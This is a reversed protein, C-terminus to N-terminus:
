HRSRCQATGTEDALLPCRREGRYAAGRRCSGSCATSPTSSTSRTPSRMSDVRCCPSQRGVPGDPDATPVLTDLHSQATEAIPETVDIMSDDGGPDQGGQRCLGGLQGGAPSVLGSSATEGALSKVGRPRCRPSVHQRIAGRIAAKAAGLCVARYPTRRRRTESVPYPGITVGANKQRPLDSSLPYQARAGSEAAGDTMQALPEAVTGCIRAVDSIFGDSIRRPYRRHGSM